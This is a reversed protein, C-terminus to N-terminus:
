AKAQAVSVAPRYPAVTMDRGFGGQKTPDHYVVDFKTKDSDNYLARAAGMSRQEHPNWPGTSKVPYETLPRAAQLGQLRERNGFM